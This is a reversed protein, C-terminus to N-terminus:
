GFHLLGPADIRLVLDLDGFLELDPEPATIIMEILIDDVPDVVAIRVGGIGLEARHRSQHELWSFTQGEIGAIALM